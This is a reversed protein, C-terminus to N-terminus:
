RPTSTTTERTEGRRTNLTPSLWHKSSQHMATVLTRFSGDPSPTDYAIVNRTDLRASSTGLPCSIGGNVKQVVAPPTVVRQSVVGGDRKVHQELRLLRDLCHPNEFDGRLRWM